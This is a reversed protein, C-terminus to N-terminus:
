FLLGSTLTRFVWTLFVFNNNAIKKGARPQGARQFLGARAPEGDPAWAPAALLSLSSLMRKPSMKDKGRSLGSRAILSAPM